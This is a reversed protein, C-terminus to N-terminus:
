ALAQGVRTVEVLSNGSFKSLLVVAKVVKRANLSKGVSRATRMRSRRLKRTLEKIRKNALERARQREETADLALSEAIENLTPEDDGLM